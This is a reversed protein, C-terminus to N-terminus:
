APTLTERQASVNQANPASNAALTLTALDFRILKGVFPVGMPTTRLYELLDYSSAFGMDVAQNHALETDIDFRLGGVIMFDHDCAFPLVAKVNVTGVPIHNSGEVFPVGDFTYLQVEKGAATIRNISSLRQVILGKTFKHAEVQTM